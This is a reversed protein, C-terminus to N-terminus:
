ADILTRRRILGGIDFRSGLADQTDLSDRSALTTSEFELFLRRGAGAVFGVRHGAYM